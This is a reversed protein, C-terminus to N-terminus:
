FLNSEKRKIWLCDAKGLLTCKGSNTYPQLIDLKHARLTGNLLKKLILDCGMGFEYFAALNFMAPPYSMEASLKYNYLAEKLDTKTNKHEVDLGLLSEDNYSKSTGTEYFVGLNYLELGKESYIEKNDSFSKYAILRGNDSFKTHGHNLASRTTHFLM